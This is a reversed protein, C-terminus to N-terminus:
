VTIFIKGICKDLMSDICKAMETELTDLSSQIASIAEPSFQDIKKPNIELRNRGTMIFQTILEVFHEDPLLTGNRASRFTFFYKDDLDLDNILPGGSYRLQNVIKTLKSIEDLFIRDEDMIAHAFRHAIIWPTMSISNQINANSCYFVTIGNSDPKVDINFLKKINEPNTIGALEELDILFDDSFEVATRDYINYSHTYKVDTRNVFYLHFLYPINKFRYRINKIHEPSKLLKRDIDPFTGPVDMNHVELNGIPSEFLEIIKM